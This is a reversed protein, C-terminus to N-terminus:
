DESRESRLKYLRLIASMFDRAIFRAVPVGYFNVDTTVRYHSIIELETFNGSIAELNFTTDYLDFYQGGIKVHEDLSGKPFSDPTFRYRWTISRDEIRDTVLASFNVGAGM